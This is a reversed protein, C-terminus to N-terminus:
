NGNPKEKKIFLKKFALSILQGASYNDVTKLQCDRLNDCKSEYWNKYKNRDTTMEELSVSAEGLLKDSKAKGKNAIEVASQLEAIIKDKDLLKTELESVREALNQSLTKLSDIEKKIIQLDKFASTAALVAGELNGNQLENVPDIKFTKLINMARLEDDNTQPAELPINLANALGKVIGNIVKERHNFLVEFDDPHHQGVGCEILVCPTKASLRSWMYYQKTNINSREPHYVIGTEQGYIRNLIGTIRQSEITASDLSPDAFDVFYGGTNYIDADYHIALFCDWDGSIETNMPEAEVVRVEVGLSKLQNAVKNAVDINFAQEGPAGTSGTTRGAHGAQLLLRM